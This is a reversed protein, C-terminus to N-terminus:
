QKNEMQRFKEQIEDWEENFKDVTDNDWHTEDGYELEYDAILEIEYLDKQQALTKGELNKLNM